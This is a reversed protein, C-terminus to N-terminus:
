EIVDREIYDTTAYAQFKKLFLTGNHSLDDDGFGDAYTPSNITGLNKLFSTAMTQDTYKWVSHPVGYTHHWELMAIANADSGTGDGSSSSNGWETDFLPYGNNWWNTYESVKNMGYQHNSVFVDSIGVNSLADYMLYASNYGTGNMVMVPDVVNSRIISRISEVFPICDAVTVNYPENALEYMMNPLNAYKTSFYAFFEEAEAQHLAATGTPASQGNTGSGLVHWDLLIYMGLNVCINILKEIESKTETPHSIYGYAIQGDSSAFYWDELYVCIRLCNVGYNKLSRIAKLTYLNSYQLLHHTGVGRIEMQRGDKDVLYKGVKRLKGHIQVDGTPTPEAKSYIVSGDADYANMLESGDADYVASLVNGNADYVAM